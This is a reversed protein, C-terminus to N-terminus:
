KVEPSREPSTSDIAPVAAFADIIRQVTEPSGDTVTLTVGGRELKVVPADPRARRWTAYALAFNALGIGQTMVVNIVDIAGGQDGPRGPNPPVTVECARLVDPDQNLWRRLSTLVRGDDDAISIELSM